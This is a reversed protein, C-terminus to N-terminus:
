SLHGFLNVLLLKKDLNLTNAQILSKAVKDTVDFIKEASFKQSLIQFVEKEDFLFFEIQGSSYLSWRHFFFTITESFIEFNFNKESIKKFIEEDIIQNKISNLFASYIEIMERGADIAKAPSSDCMIALIKIEESSFKLINKQLIKAFDDSSLDPIKILQCRSKITPLLKSPNHSILILFNNPHPEELIKLLANSAARNLDDAADIIIFKHASIASTQNVFDAIQRIQDVVIDRKNEQKKILFLDPHNAKGRFIELILEQAFSAKGIGKKGHLLIAHPLKNKQHHTILRSKISDFGIM